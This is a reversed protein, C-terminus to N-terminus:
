RSVCEVPGGSQEFAPTGDPLRIALVRARWPDLAWTIFVRAAPHPTPSPKRRSEVDSFSSGNVLFIDLWSDHDFDLLAVGGGMEELLFQKNLPSGSLNLAQGLGAESAIDTFTVPAISGAAHAM